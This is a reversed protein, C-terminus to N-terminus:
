RGEGADDGRTLKVLESIAHLLLLLCGAPVAAQSWWTPIDLLTGTTRGRVLSDRAVDWGWWLTGAAFAAVIVLSLGEVLVRGGPGLRELLLTIRIHQRGKLLWPMALFAAWILLLRAVEEVWITPANFLYRALVEYTLIIGTAFLLWAALIALARNALDIWTIM